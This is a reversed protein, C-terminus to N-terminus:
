HLSRSHPNHGRIKTCIESHVFLRTLVQNLCMSPHRLQVLCCLYKLPRSVWQSGTFVCFLVYFLIQGNELYLIKKFLKVKSELVNPIEQSVQRRWCARHHSPDKWLWRSAGPCILVIQKPTSQRGGQLPCRTVRMGRYRHSVSWFLWNWVVVCLM